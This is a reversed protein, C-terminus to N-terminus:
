LDMVLEMSEMEKETVFEYRFEKGCVFCFIFIYRVENMKNRPILIEHDAGCERCKVMVAEFKIRKIGPM